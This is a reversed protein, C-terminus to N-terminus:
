QRFCISCYISGFNFTVKLFVALDVVGRRLGEGLYYIADETAQEEAFANLLRCSFILNSYFGKYGRGKKNVCSGDSDSRPWKIVRILQIVVLQPM